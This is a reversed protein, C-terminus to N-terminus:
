KIFSEVDIRERQYAPKITPDDMFSDEGLTTLKTALGSIEAETKRLLGLEEIGKNLRIQELDLTLRESLRNLNRIDNQLEAIAGNLKAMAKEYANALPQRDNLYRQMEEITAKAQRQDFSRGAVKMPWREEEDARRYATQFRNHLNKISAMNETFGSQKSQIDTLRKSLADLRERRVDLQESVQSEAWRVYGEPDRSIKDPTWPSNAKEKPTTPAAQGPPGKATRGAPECGTCCLAICCGLLWM